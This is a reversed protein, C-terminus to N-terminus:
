IYDVLEKLFPAAKKRARSLAMRVSNKQIGMTSAIEADSELLFYKRELIEREEVPINIWFRHFAEIAIRRDIQEVLWNIENSSADYIFELPVTDHHKRLMSIAKNKVVVALYSLQQTASYRCLQEGRRSISIWVEQTLDEIDSLNDFYKSAEKFVFNNYTEYFWVFFEEPDDQYSNTYNGM